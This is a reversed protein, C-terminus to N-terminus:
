LQSHINNCLLGEFILEQNGLQPYSIRPEISIKQQLFFLFQCGFCYLCLVQFCTLEPLLPTSLVENDFIVFQTKKKKKKSCNDSSQKWLCSIRIDSIIELFCDVGFFM